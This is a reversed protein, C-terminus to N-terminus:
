RNPGVNIFKNVRGESPLVPYEYIDNAQYGQERKRSWKSADQNFRDHFDYILLPREPGQLQYLWSYPIASGSKGGGAWIIVDSRYGDFGNGQENAVISCVGDHWVNKRDAALRRRSNRCIQFSQIDGGVFTRAQPLKKGIALAHALNNVLITVIKRDLTCQKAVAVIKRNRRENHWYVRYFFDPEDSQIRNPTQRNDIWKTCVPRRYRGRTHIDIVDPGFAGLM